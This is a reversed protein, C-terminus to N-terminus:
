AKTVKGNEDITLQGDKIYDEITQLEYLLDDNLEDVTFDYESFTYTCDDSRDTGEIFFKGNKELGFRYLRYNGPEDKPTYYKDIPDCYGNEMPYELDITKAKPPLLRKITARTNEILEKEYKERFTIYSTATDVDKRKYKQLENHEKIEIETIQWHYGWDPSTSLHAEDQYCEDEDLHHGGDDLDSLERNYQDEMEKRADALTDHTSISTIHYNVNVCTLIYKKM